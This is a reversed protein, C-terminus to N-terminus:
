NHLGRNRGSLAYLYDGPKVVIVDVPRLGDLLENVQCIWYAIAWGSSNKSFADITKKILPNPKKIEWDIEFEPIYEKGDQVTFLEGSNIWRHVKQRASKKKTGLRTGLETPTFFQFEESITKQFEAHIKAQKSLPDDKLFAMSKYQSILEKQEKDRLRFLFDELAELDSQDSSTLISTISEFLQQWRPTAKEARHLLDQDAQILSLEPLLRIRTQLEYCGKGEKLAVLLVNAPLETSAKSGSECIAKIADQAARRASKEALGFALFQAALENAHRAQLSALAHKTAM